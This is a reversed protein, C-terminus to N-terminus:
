LMSRWSGRRSHPGAPDRDSEREDSGDGARHGRHRGPPDRAFDRDTREAGMVAEAAVAVLDHAPLLPNVPLPVAGQQMAGVQQWHPVTADPLVYDTLPPPSAVAPDYLSLLGKKECYWM